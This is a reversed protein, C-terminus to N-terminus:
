EVMELMFTSRDRYLDDRAGIRSFVRDVIGMEATEAPVFCGSQALISAIAVQRLYTSKGGQNPGTIIHLHSSEDMITTNPTFARAQLLLSNEVVPHRGGVVNLTTSDNLVPRCYNRQVAVTAFCLGLDLEDLMEADSQIEDARGVIQSRLADFERRQTLVLEDVLSDMRSALASWANYAYSKTSKTEGIRALKKSGAKDIKTWESSKEVVVYAAMRGRVLSLTEVGYQNRLEAQMAAQEEKYEALRRRLKALTPSFSPKLYWNDNERESKDQSAAASARKSGASKAKKPVPDEESLMEDGAESMGDEDSSTPSKMIAVEDLSDELMAALSDLNQFASSLERLRTVSESPDAEPDLKVEHEMERAIVALIRQVGRIWKGTEWADRADGRGAKFRQVIRMIDGQDRLLDRLELRLEPRDVFAQVLALRANITAVDLLPASLTRVLLRHGSPTVTKAVVSLLSGKASIPSIQRGFTEGSPALGGPRLAHRIELAHLTAADIQMMQSASQRRPANLDPMEDRLAYELHRRLLSIATTELSLQSQSDISHQSATSSTGDAASDRASAPIIPDAFSVHIGLVRLLALLDDGVKDPQVDPRATWVAKLAQHLVVERPAIRALEDEIYEMTTEKLFFEGTSADTYALSLPRDKADHDGDPVDTEGMAIALLYVAEGGDAWGESYLTGPTLVRGVKREKLEAGSTKKRLPILVEKNGDDDYEEVLM